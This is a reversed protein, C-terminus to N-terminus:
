ARASAPRAPEVQVFLGLFILAAACGLTAYGGLGLYEIATLHFGETADIGAFRSIQNLQDVVLASPCLGTLLAIVRGVMGKDGLLMAVLALGPVLWLWEVAERIGVVHMGDCALDFGSATGKPTAIWPLFFAFILALACLQIPRNMFHPLIQRVIRALQQGCM